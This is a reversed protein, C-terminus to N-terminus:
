KSTRVRLVLCPTQCCATLTLSLLLYQQNPYVPPLPIQLILVMLHASIAILGQEVQLKGKM